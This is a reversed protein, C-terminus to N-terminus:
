IKGNEKNYPFTVEAKTTSESPKELWSRDGYHRINKTNQLHMMDSKSHDTIEKFCLFISKPYEGKALMDYYEFFSDFIRQM